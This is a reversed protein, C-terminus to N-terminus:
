LFRYEGAAPKEVIRYDWGPISRAYRQDPIIRIGSRGAFVDKTEVHGEGSGGQPNTLKPLLEKGNDELLAVVAAPPNTPEPGEASIACHPALGLVLTATLPVCGSIPRM